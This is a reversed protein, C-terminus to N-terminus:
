RFKKWAGYKVAIEFLDRTENQYTVKDIFGKLFKYVFILLIWSLESPVIFHNIFNSSLASISVTKIGCPLLPVTQRDLWTPQVNFQVNQWVPVCFSTLFKSDKSIIAWIKTTKSWKFSHGDAFDFLFIVLITM